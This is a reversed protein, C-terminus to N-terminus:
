SRRHEGEFWSRGRGLLFDVFAGRSLSVLGLARETLAEWPPDLAVSGVRRCPGYLVSVLEGIGTPRAHWGGRMPEMDAFLQAEQRSSFVPLVPGEGGCDATFVDVHKLGDRAILWYPPNNSSMRRSLRTAASTHEDM